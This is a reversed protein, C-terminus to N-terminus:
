YVQSIFFGYEYFLVCEHKRVITLPVEYNKKAKKKFESFNNRFDSQRRVPRWELVM